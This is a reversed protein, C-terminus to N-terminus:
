YAYRLGLNYTSGIGTNRGIVYNTYLIDIEVLRSILFKGGAGLSLAFGPIESVLYLTVISNLFFQYFVKFYGGISFRQSADFWGVRPFVGAAFFMSFSEGFYIDYYVEYWIQWADYELFPHDDVNGEFDSGVPIHLLLQMALHDVKFPAFKIKPAVTTLAWHANTNSEFDLVKFLNGKRPDFRVSKLFFDMGINWTSSLGYYFGLISTFYTRRETLTDRQLFANFFGKETYINNYNKIEFSGKNILASSDFYTERKTVGIALSHDNLTWDYKKWKIGYELPIKKEKFKNFYALISDSKQAFDDKYWRFLESVLVKEENYLVSVYYSDNITKSAQEDLAKDITKGKYPEDRLAPCGMAVCVLAFHIRPDRDKALIKKHEIDDLTIKEKGIKHKIQSFFGSIEKPSSVPYHDIIGKIASINYANIWFAKYENRNLSATDIQELFKVLIDLDKKNKVVQSYHINNKKLYDNLFTQYRSQLDKM